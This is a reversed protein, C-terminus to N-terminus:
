IGAYGKLDEIYDEVAVPTDGEFEIATDFFIGFLKENISDIAASLMVGRERARAAADEGLLVAALIEKETDTLPSEDTLPADEDHPGPEEPAEAAPVTGNM